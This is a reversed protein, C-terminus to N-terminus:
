RLLSAAQQILEPLRQKKLDASDKAALSATSYLKDFSYRRSDKRGELKEAFYGAAAAAKLEASTKDFSSTPQVFPASLQKSTSNAALIWVLALPDENINPSTSATKLGVEYLLALSGNEMPRKVRVEDVVFGSSAKQLGEGIRRYESVYSPNFEVVARSASGNTRLVVLLLYRTPNFPNIAFETEILSAGNKVPGVFANVLEGPSPYVKPLSGSLLDRELRLYKSQVRGSDFRDTGLSARHDVSTSSRSVVTNNDRVLKGDHLFYRQKKGTAADVTYVASVEDPEDVTAQASPEKQMAVVRTREPAVEGSSIAAAALPMAPVEEKVKVPNAIEQELHAGGEVDKSLSDSGRRNKAVISMLVIFATATVLLAALLRRSRPVRAEAEAQEIMAMASSNLSSEVASRAKEAAEKGEIAVICRYQLLARRCDACEELHHEIDEKEPDALKGEVLDLFRDTVSNHNM